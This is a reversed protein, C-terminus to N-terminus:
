MLIIECSLSFKKLKIKSQEVQESVILDVTKFLKSKRLNTMFNAVTEDDLALGDIDLKTGVKKLSELHLKEPKDVSLEDLVRAPSAKEKKLANIINLKEQLTKQAEKEKNLEASLNKYRNIEEKTTAIQALTEEKERGLRWHVISLIILLLLVSSILVAIERKMGAKKKEKRALLLNIKIM